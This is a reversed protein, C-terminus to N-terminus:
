LKHFSKMIDHPAAHQRTCDYPSSCVNPLQAGTDRSLKKEFSAMQRVYMQSKCPEKLRM